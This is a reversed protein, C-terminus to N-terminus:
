KSLFRKAVVVIMVVVLGVLGFVLGRIVADSLCGRIEDNGAMFILIVILALVVFSSIKGVNWIKDGKTKIDEATKYDVGDIKM